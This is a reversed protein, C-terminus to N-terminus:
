NRQLTILNCLLHCQACSPNQIVPLLLSTASSLSSHILLPFPPSSKPNLYRSLAPGCIASVWAPLVCTNPIRRATFTLTRCVIWNGEMNKAMPTTSQIWSHLVEPNNLVKNASKLYCILRKDVQAHMKFISIYWFTSGLMLFHGQMWILDMRAILIHATM